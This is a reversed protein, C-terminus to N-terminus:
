LADLGVGTHAETQQPSDFAQKTANSAWRRLSGVNASTILMREVAASHSITQSATEKHHNIRSHVSSLGQSPRFLYAVNELKPM